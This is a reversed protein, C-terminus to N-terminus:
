YSKRKNDRHKAREALPVTPSVRGKIPQSKRNSDPSTKPPTNDHCTDTFNTSLSSTESIADFRSTLRFIEATDTRFHGTDSPSRKQRVQLVNSCRGRISRGLGDANTSLTQAGTGDAFLHSIGWKPYGVVCFGCEDALSGTFGDGGFLGACFLCLYSRFFHAFSREVGNGISEEGDLEHTVIIPYSFPRNSDFGQHRSSM